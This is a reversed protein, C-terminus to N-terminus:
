LPLIEPSPSKAFLGEGSGEEFVRLFILQNRPLPDNTFGFAVPSYISFNKTSPNPSAWEKLFSAEGYTVQKFAFRYLVLADRPFAIELHDGDSTGAEPRNRRQM